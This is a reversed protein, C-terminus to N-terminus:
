QYRYQQINSTSSCIINLFFNFFLYLGDFYVFASLKASVRARWGSVLPEPICVFTRANITMKVALAPQILYYVCYNLLWVNFLDVYFLCYRFGLPNMYESQTEINHQNIHFPRFRYVCRYLYKNRCM